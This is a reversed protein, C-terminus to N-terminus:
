GMGECKEPLAQVPHGCLACFDEGGPVDVLLHENPPVVVWGRERLWGVTDVEMLEVVRGAVEGLKQIARMTKLDEASYPGPM